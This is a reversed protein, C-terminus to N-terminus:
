GWRANLQYRSFFIITCGYPSTIINSSIDTLVNLRKGKIRLICTFKLFTYLNILHFQFSLSCNQLFYFVHLSHSTKFLPTYIIKFWNTVISAKGKQKLLVYSKIRRVIVCKLCVESYWFLINTFNVYTQTHTHICKLFTVLTSQLLINSVNQVPNLKCEAREIKDFLLM